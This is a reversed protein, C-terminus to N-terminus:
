LLKQPIYSIEKWGHFIALNVLNSKSAALPPLLFAFLKHMLIFQKRRSIHPPFTYSSPFMNPPLPHYQGCVFDHTSDWLQLWTSFVALVPGGSVESSFYSIEHVEDRLYLVLKLFDLYFKIQVKLIINSPSAGSTFHATLLSNKRAM